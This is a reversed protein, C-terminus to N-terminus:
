LVSKRHGEFPAVFELGGLGPMIPMSRSRAMISVESGRTGQAHEACTLSDRDPRPRLRIAWRFVETSFRLQRM